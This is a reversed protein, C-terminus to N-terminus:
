KQSKLILIEEIQSESISKFEVGIGPIRMSEGWKVVHRIQARIASVDTLEKFHIKIDEYPDWGHTSFIFCGGKSVNITASLEDETKHRINNIIANFHINKRSDSRIMRPVFNGCVRHIFDRITPECEQSNYFCSIEGTQPNVKLHCVPFSEVLGYVFGKNIKLAKMKTKLDLFIGHYTLGCIERTMDQFSESVHVQIPYEKLVSLYTERTTNDQVILLVRTDM